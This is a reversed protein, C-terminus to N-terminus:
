LALAVSVTETPKEKSVIEHNYVEIVMKETDGMLAAIKPISIEPIKYCLSSCYNHRFIHPTLGIIPEKSVSQMEQLIREWMRRFSTKSMLENNRMHFLNATKLSKVYEEIVPYVSDPIPVIRHVGNKTDKLIPTNVDFTIAKNVSIEKRDLSIDFRTLALAEGRRLGCGYLVYVFVKDMSKFNAKKIATKEHDALPRKDKAKYKITIGDDFILDYVNKNLLNDKIASRIVQKFTMSIQQKIRAGSANNICYAYHSRNIEGVRCVLGEFHKNIVNDYMEKTKISKDGKYAKRWAKAYDQFTVDSQRVYERAKVKAKFANVKEELDKSSKDSRLNVLHKNGGADYTGDWVKTQFYGNKQKTYKAKAM